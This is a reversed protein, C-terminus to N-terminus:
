WCGCWDSRLALHTWPCARPRVTLRARRIRRWRSRSRDATCIGTETTLTLRLQLMKRISKKRCKNQLLDTPPAPRTVLNIDKRHRLWSRLLLYLFCLANLDATAQRWRATKQWEVESPFLLAWHPGPRQYSHGPWKNNGKNNPVNKKGSVERQQINQSLQRGSNDHKFVKFQKPSKIQTQWKSIKNCYQGLWTSEYLDLARRTFLDVTDSSQIFTVLGDEVSIM